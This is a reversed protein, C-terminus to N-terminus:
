DTGGGCENRTFRERRLPLSHSLPIAGLDLWSEAYEFGLQGHQDQTLHGTLHDHLHVDLTRPMPQPTKGSAYSRDTRTSRRQRPAGDLHGQDWPYPPGNTGQRNPLHSQGEGSRHHLSAGDGLDDRTGKPDRRTEQPFLPRFQRDTRSHMEYGVRSTVSRSHQLGAHLTEISYNGIPFGLSFPADHRFTPTQSHRITCRSTSTGIAPSEFIPLSSTRMGNEPNGRTGVTSPITGLAGSEVAPLQSDVKTGRLLVNTEKPSLGIGSDVWRPSTPYPVPAPM